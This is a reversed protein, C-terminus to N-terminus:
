FDGTCTENKSCIINRKKKSRQITFFLCFYQLFCIFFIIHNLRLGMQIYCIVAPSFFQHTNSDYSSAITSISM